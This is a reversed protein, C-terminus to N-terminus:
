VDRDEEMERVYEPCPGSEVRLKLGFAGYAAMLKDVTREAQSTSMAGCPHTRVYPTRCLPVWEHTGCLCEAADTVNRCTPCMWLGPGVTSQRMLIHFKHNRPKRM